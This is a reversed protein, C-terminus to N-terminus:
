SVKQKGVQPSPISTRWGLSLEIATCPTIAYKCANMASTVIDCHIPKGERLEIEYVTCWMDADRSVVTVAAALVGLALFRLSQQM